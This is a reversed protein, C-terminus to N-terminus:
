RRRRAVLAVLAVLRAHVDAASVRRHLERHRSRAVYTPSCLLFCFVISFSSRRTSQARRGDARACRREAARRHRLLFRANTSRTRRWSGWSVRKGAILARRAMHRAAKDDGARMLAGVIFAWQPRRSVCPRAVLARLLCRCSSKACSWALCQTAADTSRECACECFACAGAVNDILTNIRPADALAGLQSVLYNFLM